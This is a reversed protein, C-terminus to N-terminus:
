VEEKGSGRQAKLDKVVVTLVSFLANKTNLESMPKKKCM